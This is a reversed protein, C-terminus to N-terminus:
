AIDKNDPQVLPIENNGSAPTPPETAGPLSGLVGLPTTEDLRKDTDGEIRIIRQMLRDREGNWESREKDYRAQLTNLNYETATLKAETAALKAQTEAYRKNLDIIEGQLKFIQQTVTLSLENITKQTEADIRTAANSVQRAEIEALGRGEMLKIDVEKQRRRLRFYGIAGAILLTILGFNKELFQIFPIWSDM